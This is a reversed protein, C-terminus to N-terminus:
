QGKGRRDKEAVYPGIADAEVWAGNKVTIFRPLPKGCSPCHTAGKIDLNGCYPCFWVETKPSDGRPPKRRTAIQWQDRIAYLFLAAGVLVVVYGAYQLLSGALKEQRVM